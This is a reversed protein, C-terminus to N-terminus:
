ITFSKRVSFGRTFAAADTGIATPLARTTSETAAPPEGSDAPKEGEPRLSCCCRNHILKESTSGYLRRLLLHMHHEQRQLAAKAKQLEKFLQMVLQKLVVPEDPLTAADVTLTSDADM